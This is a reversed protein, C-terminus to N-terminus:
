RSVTRESLAEIDRKAVAMDRELRFTREVMRNHMEVRGTLEDIKAEMVIRSWPNSALVGLLTVLLECSLGGNKCTDGFSRFPM